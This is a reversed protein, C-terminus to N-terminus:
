GREGSAASQNVEHISKALKVIEKRL